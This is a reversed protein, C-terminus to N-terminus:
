AGYKKTKAYPDSGANPDDINFELITKPGLQIKAGDYLSAGEPPIRRGDIKVLALFIVDLDIMDIKAPM